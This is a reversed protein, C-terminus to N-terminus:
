DYDNDRYDAENEEASQQAASAWEDKNREVESEILASIIKRDEPNELIFGDIGVAEWSDLNFGGHWGVNPEPKTYDWEVKVMIVHYGSEAIEEKSAEPIGPEMASLYADGGIHVDEIEVENLDRVELSKAKRFPGKLEIKRVDTPEDEVEEVATLIAGLGTAISEKSRRRVALTALKRIHISVDSPKM